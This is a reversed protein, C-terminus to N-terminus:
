SGKKVTGMDVKEVIDGGAGPDSFPSVALLVEVTVGKADCDGLEEEVEIRFSYDGGEKIGDDTVIRASVETSQNACGILVFSILIGVITLTKM